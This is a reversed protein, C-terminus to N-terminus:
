KKVAPGRPLAEVLNLRNYARFNVEQGLRIDPRNIQRRQSVHGGHFGVTGLM